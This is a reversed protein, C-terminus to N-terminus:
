FRSSPVLRAAADIPQLKPWVKGGVEVLEESRVNKGYARVETVMRHQKILSQGRFKPSEVTIKYM